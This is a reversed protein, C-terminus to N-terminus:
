PGWAAAIICSFNGGTGTYTPVVSGTTTTHALDIIGIGNGQFEFDETANSWTGVVTGGTTVYVVAVGSVPVAITISIPDSATSPTSGNATPTATAGTLYGVIINGNGMNVASNVVVDATTGTPVVAYWLSLNFLTPDAKVLTASVGGITMSTLAAASIVAAVVVVRSASATGIAM